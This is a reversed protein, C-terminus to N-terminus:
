ISRRRFRWFWRWGSNKNPMIPLLLSKFCPINPANVAPNLAPTNCGIFAPKLLSIVWVAGIDSIVKGIFLGLWLYLILLSSMMPLFGFLFAKKLLLFHQTEMEKKNM